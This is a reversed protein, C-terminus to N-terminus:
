QCCRLAGRGKRLPQEGKAQSSGKVIYDVAGEALFRQQLHASPNGTFIIIFEVQKSRSLSLSFIRDRNIM